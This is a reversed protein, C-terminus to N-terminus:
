LSFPNTRGTSDINVKTIDINTKNTIEDEITMDFKNSAFMEKDLVTLSTLKDMYSFRIDLNAEIMNGKEDRKIEALDISNFRKFRDLAAIFGRIRIYDGSILVNASFNKTTKNKPEVNKPSDMEKNMALSDKATVVENRMLSSAQEKLDKFSIENITVANEKAISNLSAVVDENFKKEPLYHFVMKQGPTDQSLEAELKSANAVRLNIDDLRAESKALREQFDVIGEPDSYTPAIVWISLYIIGFIMLPMALIKIKM